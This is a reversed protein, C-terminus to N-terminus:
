QYSDFLDRSFMKKFFASIQLDLTCFSQAAIVLDNPCLNVHCCFFSFNFKCSKKKKKLEKYVECLSLVALTLGPPSVATAAPM